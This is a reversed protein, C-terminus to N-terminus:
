KSSKARYFVCWGYCNRPEHLDSVGECRVRRVNDGKEYRTIPIETTSNLVAFINPVDPEKKREYRQLRRKLNGLAREDLKVDDDVSLGASCGM